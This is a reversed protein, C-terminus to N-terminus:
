DGGNLESLIAKLEIVQLPCGDWDHEWCVILDCLAADHGHAKFSSSKFEFEIAVREFTGDENRIKADCDPFGAQVSEVRFNLEDALMGFLFVVGLENVPAHQMGRFQILEGYKRRDKKIKINLKVKDKVPEVGEAKAQAVDFATKLGGFERIYHQSSHSLNDDMEQRAPERKLEIMLEALESIMRDRDRLYIRGPKLGAQILAKSFGGFRRRVTAPSVNGIKKLERTTLTKKGLSEALERLHNLISEKDTECTMKRKIM